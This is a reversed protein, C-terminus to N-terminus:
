RDSPFVIILSLCLSIPRTVSLYVSLCVSLCVFLCVLLCVSLCALMCVSLCVSLRLSLQVSLSSSVHYHTYKTRTQYIRAMIYGSRSDNTAVRPQKNPSSSHCLFNWSSALFIVFSLQQFINLLAPYLLM